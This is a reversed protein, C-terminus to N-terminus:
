LKLCSKGITAATAVAKDLIERERCTQTTTWHLSDIKTSIREIEHQVYLTAKEYSEKATGIWTAELPESVEELKIATNDLDEKVEPLKSAASRVAEPIIITRGSGALGKVPM